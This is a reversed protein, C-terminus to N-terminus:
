VPSQRTLVLDSKIASNNDEELFIWMLPLWLTRAYPIEKGNVLVRCAPDKEVQNFLSFLAGTDAASFEARHRLYKGEGEEHYNKSKKALSVAAGYGKGNFPGFELTMVFDKKIKKPYLIEQSRASLHSIDDEDYNIIDPLDRIKKPISEKKM